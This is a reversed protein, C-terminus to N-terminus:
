SIWRRPPSMPFARANMRRCGDAGVGDDVLVHLQARVADDARVHMEGSMGADSVSVMEVGATHDAIRRLRRGEVERRERPLHDRPPLAGDDPRVGGDREFDTM